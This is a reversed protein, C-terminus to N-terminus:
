RRIFRAGCCWLAVRRGSRSVSGAAARRDARRQPRRGQPDSRRLRVPRDGAGDGEIPQRSTRVSAASSCMTGSPRTWRRRPVTRRATTWSRARGARRGSDRGCEAERDCRRVDPQDVRCHARMVPVRVCTATIRTAEDDSSSRARRAQGDEDRRRQLRRPDIDSNHSFLNFAYQRSSTWRSRRATASWRRAPRSSSSRM